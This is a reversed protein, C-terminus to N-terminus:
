SSNHKVGIKYSVGDHVIGGFATISKDDKSALFFAPASPIPFPLAVSGSSLAERAGDLIKKSLEM